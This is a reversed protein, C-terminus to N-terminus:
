NRIQKDICKYKGFELSIFYIYNLPLKFLIMVLEQRRIEVSFCHNRYFEMPRATVGVPRHDACALSTYAKDCLEVKPTPWLMVSFAQGLFVGQNAHGDAM